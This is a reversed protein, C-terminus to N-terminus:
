EGCICCSLADNGTCDVFESDANVDDSQSAQERAYAQNAEDKFCEDCLAAEQAATGQDTVLAKM